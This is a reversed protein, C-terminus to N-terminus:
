NPKGLAEDVSKTGENKRRALFQDRMLERAELFKAIVEEKTKDDITGFSSVFAQTQYTEGRFLSSRIRHNM